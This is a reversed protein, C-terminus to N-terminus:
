EKLVVTARKAEKVDQSVGSCLELDDASIANQVIYPLDDVDFCLCEEASDGLLNEYFFRDRERDCFRNCASNSDASDEPGPVCPGRGKGNGRSKNLANFASSSRKTAGGENTRQFQHLQNDLQPKPVVGRILSGRSAREEGKNTAALAIAMNKVALIVLALKM